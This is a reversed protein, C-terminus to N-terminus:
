QLLVKVHEYIGFFAMGGVSIYIVWMMAGRYLGKIGEEKFIDKLIESRSKENSVTM